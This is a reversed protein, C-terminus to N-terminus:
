YSPTNTWIAGSANTGSRIIVGAGPQFVLDAGKNASGQGVKRWGGNRFYYTGAASKNKGTLSNDFVLLEDIRNFPDPSERFAGTSPDSLNVLGAGNLSVSLPRPLAFYNDQRLSSNRRVFSRLEGALVAGETTVVTNTPNNHRVIVFMDPTVVEDNKVAAGKGVQRWSGSFFYFTASASLNIGTGGLNPFLIETQRNFTDITPHIGTGGHFITGLTWYPVISVADDPLLATLADGQLDLTLTDPNNATITYWNGELLGSRILM